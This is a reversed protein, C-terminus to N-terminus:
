EEKHIIHFNRFRKRNSLANTISGISSTVGFETQIARAFAAYSDFEGYLKDDKFAYIAHGCRKTHQQKEFDSDYTCWGLRAGKRLYSRITPLSCQYQQAFYQTTLEPHYRKEDCVKKVLNTLGFMDCRNWDVTNLPLWNLKAHIEQTIQTYTSPVCNLRTVSIGQKAAAADKQGDIAKSEEPSISGMTYRNGHGLGGDAEIICKFQPLYFDFIRPAIWSPAYQYIFHINMQELMSFIFKEPYSKGDGCVCGISRRNYLDKVAIHKERGCDPCVVQIHKASGYPYKNIDEPKKLYQQIWPAFTPLDNVGDRVHCSRCTQAGRTRTLSATIYQHIAGCKCQAEWVNNRARHNYGLYRTVTLRGFKMNTLDPGKTPASKAEFQMNVESISLKTISLPLFTSEECLSVECLSVFCRQNQCPDLFSPMTHFQMLKKMSAAM